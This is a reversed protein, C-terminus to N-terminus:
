CFQCRRDRQAVFLLAFVEVHQAEDGSFSSRTAEVKLQTDPRVSVFPGVAGVGIMVDFAECGFDVGGVATVGQCDKKLFTRLNLTKGQANMAFTTDWLTAIGEPLSQEFRNRTTSAFYFDIHM